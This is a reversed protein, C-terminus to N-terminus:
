RPPEIATFRQRQPPFAFASGTLPNDVDAIVPRLGSTMFRREVYIHFPVAVVVSMVVGLPVAIILTEWPGRVGELYLFHAMAM